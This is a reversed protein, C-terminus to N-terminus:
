PGVDFEFHGLDKFDNGIELSDELIVPAQMPEGQQDLLNVSVRYDGLPLGPTVAQGDVCTFMDDYSTGDSGLLTSAVWVREAKVERCGLAREGDTLSWTLGFSGRDLSIDFGLAREDGIDLDLRQYGSQAVLYGDQDLLDVWIDYQGPALVDISGAGDRCDFLDYVEDGDGLQGDGDDVPESVVAVTTVYPPCGVPSNADGSVLGWSVQVRSDEDAATVVCGASLLTICICISLPKNM